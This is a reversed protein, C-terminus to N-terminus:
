KWGDFLGGEYWDWLFYTLVTPHRDARVNMPIQVGGSILIHRRKSLSVQMQPVVDWESKAGSVLERAAVFEVIPTWTRNFGGETFTKGVATRWFAERPVIDPKTPLGVGGHFQVFAEGPLRQGIAAFTEFTTVGSGLGLQEKGTPLAVEEGASVITGREVSHFLDRKVAVAVDGLGYSWRGNDAQQTEFPVNFEVMTRAGLRREHVIANGIAHAPGTLFSTTLLSENEPFAKETVLAKPFNLDGQPWRHSDDCFTRVHAVVLRIERDSLAGGFAPMHRDLARVPGGEHVVAEWGEAAEVTAFLCDSFDPLPTSFGVIAQANGRGDVGHCASCAAQYVEAGSQLEQRPQPQQALAPQALM